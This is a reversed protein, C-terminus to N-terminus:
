KKNGKKVERTLGQVEKTNLMRWEGLQLKGLRLGLEESGIRTRILDVVECDHVGFMRRIQRKKGETLVM